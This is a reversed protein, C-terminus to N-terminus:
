LQKSNDPVPAVPETQEPISQYEIKFNKIKNLLIDVQKCLDQLEQINTPVLTIM